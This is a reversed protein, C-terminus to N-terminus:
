LQYSNPLWFRSASNPTTSWSMSSLRAGRGISRAVIREQIYKTRGVAAMGIAHTVTDSLSERAAPVIARWLGYDVFAPLHLHDRLYTVWEPDIREFLGDARATQVALDIEREAQAGDQYYGREWLAAPDRYAYWDSSKLATSADSWVGRGDAFAM